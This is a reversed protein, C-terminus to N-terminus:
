KLKDIQMSFFIYKITQRQCLSKLNRAIIHKASFHTAIQDTYLTDTLNEM